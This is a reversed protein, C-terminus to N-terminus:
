GSSKDARKECVRDEGQINESLAKKKCATRLHAPVNVCDCLQLCLASVFVSFLSVIAVTDHANRVQLVPRDTHPVHVASTHATHGPAVAVGIGHAGDGAGPIM